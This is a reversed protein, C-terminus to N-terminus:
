AALGGQWETGARPMRKRNPHNPTGGPPEARGLRRGVASLAAARETEGDDAATADAGEGGGDYTADPELRVRCKKKRPAPKMSSSVLDITCNASSHPDVQDDAESAIADTSTM